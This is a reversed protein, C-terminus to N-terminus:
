RDDRYSQDLEYELEKLFLRADIACEMCFGIRM